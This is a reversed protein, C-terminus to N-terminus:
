GGRRGAGVAPGTRRDREEGTEGDGDGLGLIALLDPKVSRRVELWKEVPGMEVGFLDCLFIVLGAADELEDLLLGTTGRRAHRRFEAAEIMWRVLALDLGESAAAEQDTEELEDGLLLARLGPTWRLWRKGFTAAEYELWLKRSNVDGAAVDALIQFPTLGQKSSKIDGRAMELGASWGGEVKALYEGLTGATVPRLDVGYSETISGLGKSLLISSWRDHLWRWLAQRQEETPEQDLILITHNHPHWGNAEGWTVEVARIAGRYGLRKKQRTWGSGQFLSHLAGSMADLRPELADPAHHSSTLTLFLAAHGAEIWGNVGRDIMEARKQRV